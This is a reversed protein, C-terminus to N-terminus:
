DRDLLELVPVFADIGDMTSPELWVQVHSIGERALGRLLSALEESSGTAPPAFLSRYRQVWGAVPGKKSGPLDILVTVTRQLTTPDRGAKVCATDLAQRASASALRDDIQNISWGNWYDAYQATLRLMRPSRAPTGVLIPPGSDRPGRPRLECALADYYKGRFDIEGMRLLTHIIRLAEEFRGVLHDFPYGFARYEREHYGAGLGLILPGGSIEDLTDAMKALLTPNRFSTCVVLPGLEIRMTVAALASLVSWAEWMGRPPEGAEGFEFLLHDALWLSDFGVAEAHRAMTKLDGWRAIGGAMWGENTPLMLGVKLARATTQNM